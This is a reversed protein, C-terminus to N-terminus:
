GEFDNNIDEAQKLVDIFVAFSEMSTSNYIFKDGKTLLLEKNGDVIVIFSTYESLNKESLYKNFTKSLYWDVKKGEANINTHYLDKTLDIIDGFIMKNLVKAISDM